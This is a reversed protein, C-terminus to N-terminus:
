NLYVQEFPKLYMLHWVGIVRVPINMRAAIDKFTLKEAYRLRILEVLTPSFSNKAKNFPRNAVVSDYLIKLKEPPLYRALDKNPFKLRELVKKMCFMTCELDEAIQKRTKKQAIFAFIVYEYHSRKLQEKRNGKGWKDRYPIELRKSSAIRKIEEPTFTYDRKMRSNASQARTLGYVYEHTLAADVEVPVFVKGHRREFKKISLLLQNVTLESAKGKAYNAECSILRLNAPHVILQWPLPIDGGNFAAYISLRHDIHWKPGKISAPDLLHRYRTYIKATYHRIVRSYRQYNEISCQPLKRPISWAVKLRPPGNLVGASSHATSM